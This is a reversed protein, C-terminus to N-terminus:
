REARCAALVRIARQNPVANPMLSRVAMSAASAAATANATGADASAALDDVSEILAFIVLKWAVALPTTAFPVSVPL